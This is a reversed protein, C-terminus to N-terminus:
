VNLRVVCVFTLCCILFFFYSFRVMKGNQFLVFTPMARVNNDLALSNMADVDVKVFIVNDYETSMKGFVPAAYRCPGCWTAYFDSVVLKQDKISESMADKWDDMSKIARVKHGPFEPMEGQPARFVLKFLIAVVVLSIVPNATVLGLLENLM